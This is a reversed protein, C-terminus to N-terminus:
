ITIREKNIKKIVIFIMSFCVLLGVFLISIIITKNNRMLIPLINILRANFFGILTIGIAMFVSSIVNFFQMAAMNFRLEVVFAISVYV